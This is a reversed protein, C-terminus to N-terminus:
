KSNNIIKAPNGVVTCNSPIDKCVVSGAGIRVNDGIKVDGFVTSNAFVSVNNGFVPCYVTDKGSFGHGISVGQFVSLNKGAIYPVCTFGATHYIKLGGDIFGGPHTGIEINDLPKLLILSINRVISSGLKSSIGIRYYFVTRFIKDSALLYNLAKIGHPNYNVRKPMYRPMDEDILSQISKEHTSYKASKMYLYDAFILRPYQLYVFSKRM